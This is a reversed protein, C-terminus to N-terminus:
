SSSTRMSRRGRRGGPPNGRGGGAARRRRSPRRRRTRSGGRGRRPRPAHVRPQGLPGRGPGPLREGLVLRVEGLGPEGGERHVPPLIDRGLMRDLPGGEDLIGPGRGEDVRAVRGRRDRRSGTSPTRSPSGTSPTLGQRRMGRQSAPARFHRGARIQAGDRQLDHAVRDVRDRLLHADDDHARRARGEELLRAVQRAREGVRAAPQDGLAAVDRDVETHHGERHLLEEPAHRPPLEAVPVHPVQVEGLDAAVVQGVHLRDPGHEGPPPQRREGDVEGVPGVDAAGHRPRVHRPRVLGDLLSEPDRRDLDEVPFPGRPREVRM